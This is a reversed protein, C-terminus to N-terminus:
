QFFRRYFDDTWKQPGLFKRVLDSSENFIYTEPLKYTGFYDKYFKNNDVLLKFTSSDINKKKFFKQVNIKQDDVVIFLFEVNGESYKKTLEVLEPFETECPGCWTAWFHVFVRKGVFDKLLDYKKNEDNFDVLSIDPMKKLVSNTLVVDNSALKDKLIHNSIATYLLAFAILSLLIFFRQAM